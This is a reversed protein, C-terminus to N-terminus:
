NGGVLNVALIRKTYMTVKYNEGTRHGIVWMVCDGDALLLTENRISKPIKEDIMYDQLSKRGGGSHIVLYDGTERTRLQVPHKIKDYDFWKTCPKKPIREWFAGNKWEEASTDLLQFELIKGDPLFIKAPPTITVAATRGEGSSQMMETVKEGPKPIKGDELSFIVRDYQRVARLGHPLHLQREGLGDMQPAFLAVLQGIHVATIDRRAETLHYLIELLVQKQLFSDIGRFSEVRLSITEAVDNQQRGEPLIQCSELAQETQRKLFEQAERVLDAAQAVHPVAQANIERTAYELIHHRIRNRTYDDALNTQDTVYTVGQERLFREIQPRDACLLPRIIRGNVPQMGGLGTLGTGRFLNHLVTEAQDGQHHAVAIKDASIQELAEYRVLRGAEEQSIKWLKALKPVNKEVLTFPIGRTKCLNEVFAADQDAEARIGHHVHVVQLSLEYDAQLACLVLLLAVSDAGGSVGAVVRDGKELMHFQECYSRVKEILNSM